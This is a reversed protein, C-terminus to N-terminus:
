TLSLRPPAPRNKEAQRLPGGQPGFFFTHPHFARRPDLVDGM